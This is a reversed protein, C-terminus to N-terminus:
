IVRGPQLPYAFDCTFVQGGTKSRDTAIGGIRSLIGGEPRIQFRILAAVTVISSLLRKTMEFAGGVDLSPKWAIAIVM